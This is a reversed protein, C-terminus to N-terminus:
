IIIFIFVMYRDCLNLFLINGVDKLCGLRGMGVCLKKGLPQGSDHLKHTGGRQNIKADKLFTYIGFLM